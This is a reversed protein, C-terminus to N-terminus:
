SDWVSGFGVINKVAETLDLSLRETVAAVGSFRTGMKSRWQFVDSVLLHFRPNMKRVGGKFLVMLRGGQM